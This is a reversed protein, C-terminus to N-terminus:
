KILHLTRKWRTQDFIHIVIHAMFSVREGVSQKDIQDAPTQFSWYVFLPRGVINERPVFGWYRGDLSETRNDGMAFVKGPPVVLDGNVIHSPLEDAWLATVGEGNPPIAPFDDRYPDYSHQYNGDDVPKAAQPEDQAVGNLYVIGNKLHIRDGPIGIARKVLFMDPTEPNPKLFVIVDGRQIDRYHVWPAWKSPPAFSIRDVLVHDGILLTKVMSASPIEFNQFIFTMVFLGIALVSCISALSELPTEVDKQESEPLAEHTFTAQDAPLPETITAKATRTTM